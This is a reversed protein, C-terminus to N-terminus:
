NPVRERPLVAGYGPMRERSSHGSTHRTGSTLKGAPRDIDQRARHFGAAAKASWDPTTFRGFSNGYYRAGFYDLQSEPDREKGSFWYHNAVGSSFQLTGGWPYYDADDKVNGNADAILATSHIQNSFYYYVSNTAGLDRRAVRQGAFFVYESQPSGSLDTELVIESGGYWYLTGASGSIKAVRNGDGDYLYNYTSGSATTAALQSEPDYVYSVNAGSGLLNGAIDYGYGALQNNYTAGLPTNEANCFTSSKNILNAWPDYTFSEGWYKTQTNSGPV